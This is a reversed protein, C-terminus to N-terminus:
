SLKIVLFWQAGLLYTKIQKGRKDSTCKLDIFLSIQLIVPKFWNKQSNKSHGNQFHCWRDGIFM